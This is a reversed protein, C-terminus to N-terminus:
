PLIEIQGLYSHIDFCFVHLGRLFPNTQGHQRLLRIPFTKPLMLGEMIKPPNAPSNLITQSVISDISHPVNGQRSKGATFFLFILCEQILKKSYLCLKQNVMGKAIFSAPYLIDLGKVTFTIAQM